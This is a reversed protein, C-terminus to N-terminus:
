RCSAGGASAAEFFCPPAGYILHLHSWAASRLAGVLRNVTLIRRTELKYIM